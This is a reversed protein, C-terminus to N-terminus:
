FCVGGLEIPIPTSKFKRVSQRNKIVDFIDNSLAKDTTKSFLKSAGAFLGAGIAASKQFFTRRNTKM